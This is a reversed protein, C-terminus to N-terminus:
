YYDLFGSTNAILARAYNFYCNSFWRTASLLFKLKAGTIVVIPGLHYDYDIISIADIIM